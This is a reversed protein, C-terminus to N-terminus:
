VDPREGGGARGARGGVRHRRRGHGADEGGPHDCVEAVSSRSCRARDRRRRAGGVDSQRQEGPEARDRALTMAALHAAVWAPSVPVAVSVSALSPLRPASATSGAGFVTSGILSATTPLTAVSVRLSCIWLLSPLRM